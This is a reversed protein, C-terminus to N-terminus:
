QDVGPHKVPRWTLLCLLELARARGERTYSTLNLHSGHCYSSVETVEEGVVTGEARAGGTKTRGESRQSVTGEEQLVGEM